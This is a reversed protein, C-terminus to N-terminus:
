LAWPGLAYLSRWSTTWRSSCRWFQGCGPNAPSLVSGLWFGKNKACPGDARSTVSFTFASERSSSFCQIHKFNRITSGLSSTSHMLFAVIPLMVLSGISRLYEIRSMGSSVTFRYHRWEMAFRFTGNRMMHLHCLFFFRAKSDCSTLSNKRSSSNGSNLFASWLGRKHFCHATFCTDQLHFWEQSFIPETTKSHSFM